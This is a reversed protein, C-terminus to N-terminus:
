PARSGHLTIVEFHPPRKERSTVECLSVEFGESEFSRRLEAPEFGPQVHDFSKAIAHQRHRRLAVAAIRGGPRLVRAAEAIARAPRESYSLANMLLAADFSAARFPLGHMDGQQFRVQPLHALRQSGAAVVRRSRDLCVVSRARPALLEALAGDGSAIDIVDGLSVLGLLGRLAAEWTRGPSYHREM